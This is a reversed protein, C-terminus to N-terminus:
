DEEYYRLIIHGKLLALKETVILEENTIRDICLVLKELNEDRIM